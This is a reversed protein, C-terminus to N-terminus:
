LAVACEVDRVDTSLSIHYYDTHLLAKLRRLLKIDLGCFCVQTQDRDALEYSTCPGSIANFTLGSFRGALMEPFSAFDGESTNIMGKTVSLVSLAPPVHLLVRDMFWDVGM